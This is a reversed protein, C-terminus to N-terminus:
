EKCFLDAPVLLEASYTGSKWKAKGYLGSNMGYYWEKEGKAQDIVIGPVIVTKASVPIAALMMMLMATLLIFCSKKKM